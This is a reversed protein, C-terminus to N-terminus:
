RAAQQPALPELEIRDVRVRAVQGRYTTRAEADFRWIQGSRLGATQATADGLKIGTPDLLEFVIKLQALDDPRDNRADGAVALVQGGPGRLLSSVNVEVGATLVPGEFAIPPPTQCAGLLVAAGLALLARRAALIPVAKAM